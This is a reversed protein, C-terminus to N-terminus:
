NKQEVSEEARKKAIVLEEEAKKRDTVDHIISHLVQKGNFNIKSSFVEVNRLSGNALRHIFEVHMKQNIMANKIAEEIEEKSLTNIQAINM